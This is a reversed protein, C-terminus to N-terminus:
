EVSRCKPQELAGLTVLHSELFHRLTLLKVTDLPLSLPYSWDEANAAKKLGTVARKGYEKWKGAERKPNCLSGKKCVYRHMAPHTGHREISKVFQVFGPVEGSQGFRDIAGVVSIRDFFSFLTGGPM